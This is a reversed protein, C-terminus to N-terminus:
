MITSWCRFNPGHNTLELKCVDICDSKDFFNLDEGVTALISIVNEPYIQPFNSM